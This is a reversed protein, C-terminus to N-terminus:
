RKGLDIQELPHRFNRLATADPVRERGLDIKCLERFAPLDYLADECAKDAPKFWNAIRYIRLM